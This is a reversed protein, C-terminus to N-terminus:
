GYTRCAAYKSFAECRIGPISVATRVPDPLFNDWKVELIFCDGRAPVTPRDLALFDTRYVGTRLQSDLTVRVNGPGYVFPRRLYDVIARPRLGETRMRIMLEQVLPPADALVGFEGSLLAETQGRTLFVGEKGCLGDRKVKKELRIHDLDGNYCRLRFKERRNVGDCKERLAKDALTDFYLSHLAYFGEPGAHPDPKMVASLRQRLIFYDMASVVHKVEQRFDMATFGEGAARCAAEMTFGM